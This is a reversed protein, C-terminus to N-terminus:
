IVGVSANVMSKFIELGDTSGLMDESAREPHPMMGLVNRKENFVGAISAISGNPNADETIEGEATSYRFAIQGNDELRNLEDPLVFYNGGQHAIPMKYAKNMDLGSTFVSDNHEPKLHIDKSIFRMNKNSILAGPLLGAEILIQFGNCIGIVLGGEKAFAKVSQMVPSLNAIAGTRLYDGYSFGGPVIVADVGNLDTDRHWVFQAQEGLPHKVAHYADHDCNSGPFVIVAFRM